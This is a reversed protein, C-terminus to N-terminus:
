RVGRVARGNDQWSMGERGTGFDITLNNNARTSPTSSWYETHDLGSFIPNIKPNCNPEVLSRLEDITPLRYGEKALLEPARSASYLKVGGSCSSGTWTQGFSCRQWIRGTYNDRVEGRGIDVFRDVSGCTNAYYGSGRKQEYTDGGTWTPKNIVVPENLYHYNRNAETPRDAVAPKGSIEGVYRYDRNAQTPREAVAPAGDLYRYDRNAQTPREATEWYAANAVQGFSVLLTLLSLTLIHKKM